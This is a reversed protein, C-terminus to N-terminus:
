VTNMRCRVEEDRFAIAESLTKFSRTRGDGKSHVYVRFTGSKTKTIYKEGTNTKKCNVRPKRMNCSSWRINQKQTCWELNNVKNNTRDFDLHNVIPYNQPNELFATAVLRHVQASKREGDKRLILTPYGSRYTFSMMVEPETRTRGNLQTVRSLSKVRGYNSVMYRGEYGVVDRWEEHEINSDM